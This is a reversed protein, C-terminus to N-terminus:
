LSFAVIKLANLHCARRAHDIHATVEIVAGLGHMRLAISRISHLRECYARYTSAVYLLLVAPRYSRVNRASSEKAPRAIGLCDHRRCVNSRTYILRCPVATAFIAVSTAEDM